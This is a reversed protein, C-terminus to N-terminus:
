ISTETMSTSFVANLILLSYTIYFHPSYHTEEIRKEKIITHSPWMGQPESHGASNSQPREGSICGTLPGM